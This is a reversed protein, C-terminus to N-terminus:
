TFNKLEEIWLNNYLNNVATFSDVKKGSWKTLYEYLPKFRKEMQRYEASNMYRKLENDFAPCPRKAALIEDTNEPRTHVPIPRWALSPDFAEEKSPAWMGALNSEASMLTRDVNTSQIYFNDHDYRPGVLKAYRAHLWKGLQYHQEM